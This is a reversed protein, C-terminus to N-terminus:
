DNKTGWRIKMTADDSQVEYGLARLQEAVEEAYGFTIPLRCEDFGNLAFLRVTYCATSVGSTVVSDKDPMRARAEQATLM